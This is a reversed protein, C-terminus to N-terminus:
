LTAAVFTDCADVTGVQLGRKFWRVRQASSGHTWSEPQVTGTAKKQLTDDGIAAAATLGEEIDGRELVDRKSTHHAWVGALCDAQLELRVSLENKKAPERRQQLRMRKSYGLLNQVHHAVEHALVYAQAFDGPAGLRRALARYFGLDIYAKQDAPCYFPGTASSQMGCASDVRDTFLVLKARKYRQGQQKFLPEWTDQVDDIVFHVFEVLERDPDKDPSLPQSKPQSKKGKDGGVGLRQLIDGADKGLLATVLVVLLTGGAGVAGVKRVRSGRRDEVDRSKHGRKWKMRPHYGFRDESLLGSGRENHM